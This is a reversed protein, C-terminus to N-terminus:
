DLHLAGHCIDGGVKGLDREIDLPSKIQGGVVSRAELVKVRLGAKALYGACVLGNHGAGIVIVDFETKL